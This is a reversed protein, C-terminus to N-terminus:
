EGDEDKPLRYYVKRGDRFTEIEGEDKLDKLRRRTQGDSLFMQLKIDRQQLPGKEELLQIIDECDSQWEQVANVSMLHERCSKLDWPSVSGEPVNSMM